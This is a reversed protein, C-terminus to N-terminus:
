RADKRVDYGFIQWGQGTPTLFLRGAVQVTEPRAGTTAFRLAVHATVGVPRRRASVVDLTLARTQPQVGDISAGIDHNSTLDADRRADLAAGRTFGPWSGSFDTRPYDGALYAADIWGDVVQRVDAALRHRRTAPIRGVLRGWGVQTTVAPATATAAAPASSSAATRPEDSDSGSCGSTALAVAVVAAFAWSRRGFRQSM